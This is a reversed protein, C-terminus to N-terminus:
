SSTDCFLDALRRQADLAASRAPRTAASSTSDPAPQAPAPQSVCHLELPFLQNVPRTLVRHNPMLVRASRILTDHSQNVAM